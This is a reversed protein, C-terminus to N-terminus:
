VILLVRDLSKYGVNTMLRMADEENADTVNDFHPEDKDKALIFMKLRSVRVMNNDQPFEDFRIQYVYNNKRDEMAIPVIIGYFNRDEHFIQVCMYANGWTTICSRFNNHLLKFRAGVQIHPRTSSQIKRKKKNSTM